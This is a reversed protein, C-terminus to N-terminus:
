VIYCGVKINHSKQKEGTTSNSLLRASRRAALAPPPMANNEGRGSRTAPPKQNAAASPDRLPFSPKSSIVNASALVPRSRAKKLRTDAGATQRAKDKETPALQRTQSRPKKLVPGAEDSSSLPRPPVAIVPVHPRLPGLISADPNFSENM